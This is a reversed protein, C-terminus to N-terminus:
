KTETTTTKVDKFYFVNGNAYQYWEGYCKKCRWRGGTEYNGKKLRTEKSHCYPCIIPEPM